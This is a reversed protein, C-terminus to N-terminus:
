KMLSSYYGGITMVTTAINFLVFLVVLAYACRPLWDALLEVALTYRERLQRGLRALSEELAGAHEATAIAAVVEIPWLSGAQMGSSMPRGGRVIDRLRALEERYVGNPLVRACLNLADSLLVGAGILQGLLAAFASQNRLAEVHGVLPLQLCVRELTSVGTLGKAARAHFFHDVAFYVFVALGIPFLATLLYEGLSGGAVLRPIPGIFCAALLVLAPMALKARIRRRSQTWLERQELVSAMVAEVRGSKWGAALMVREAETLVPALADFMRAPEEGRDVRRAAEEFCDGVYRSQCVKASTRLADAVGIGASHQVHWARLAETVSADLPDFTM